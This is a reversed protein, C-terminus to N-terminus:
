APYLYYAVGEPENCIRIDAQHYSLIQRTIALGLGFEGGQGTQFPDFLGEMENEGIPPGDNGIRVIWTAANTGQDAAAVTVRIKHRAYRLQNDIVNEIAVGWQESDGIMEIPALEIHWLLEPRRYRLREICDSIIQALDFSVLKRERTFLYNQKNLYLLDRIRKELRQSENVITEASSALSDKPYIGDLISQAYSRIVMVPTKLEHSINQLFFQQANDQRVLRQRMAEIAQALRGMEDKRNLIFPEHWDKEAMRGAQKEMLVLPRSLYRAFWLCPLWSVLIIAVMLIMLRWFMTMVLGNRYKDWTYSVLFVPKGKPKKPQKSIVYFLTRNDSRFTYSHMTDKQKQADGRIAIQFSLPLDSGLPYSEGEALLAFHQIAPGDVTQPAIMLMEEQLDTLPPLVITPLLPFVENGIRLPFAGRSPDSAFMAHSERLIASIQQTFFSKLTWPLSLALMAFLSLTLAAFVLWIKLVLPINKM